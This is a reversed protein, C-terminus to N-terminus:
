AEQWLLEYLVPDSKLWERLNERLARDSLRRIRGLVETASQRYADAYTSILSAALNLGSDTLEYYRKGGGVRTLTLGYAVLLAIDHQLRARRTAFRHGPAAYTLSHSGFGALRLRDFISETESVILFPNAALFDVVGLRDLELRSNSTACVELLLLLQALRFEAYDDPRRGAKTEVPLLNGTVDSSM